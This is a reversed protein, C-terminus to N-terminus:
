GFIGFRKHEYEKQPIARFRKTKGFGAFSEVKNLTQVVTVFM